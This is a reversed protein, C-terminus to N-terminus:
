GKKRAEYKSPCKVLLKDSEFQSGKMHGVAVVKHAESFNEPIIGNYVVQIREGNADKVEFTLLHQMANMQVTEQQIDGELHLGDDNSQRAQAINVYPSSTKMFATVIGGLAVM